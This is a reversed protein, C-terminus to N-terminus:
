KREQRAASIEISLMGVVVILDKDPYKIKGDFLYSMIVVACFFATCNIAANLWNVLAKKANSMGGV